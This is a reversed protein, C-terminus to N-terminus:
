SNVYSSYTTKFDPGYKKCYNYFSNYQNIRRESTLLHIDDPNFDPLEIQRTIIDQASAIDYNKMMDYFIMFSTTRGIGEKCHFHIWSEEKINKVASIFSDIVEPSPLEEDTAFIRIYKINSATVLKQEDYVEKPTITEDPHNHFSIPVGIKISALQEKEKKLVQSDTLGKNAIDHENQFSVPIGNIFGHSEQRLDFDIIALNTDIAKLLIPLNMKSFQQSGSINLSELGKTNIDTNNAISQFDSSKRFKCPLIDYTDNDRVLYVQNSTNQINKAENPEKLSEMAKAPILSFLTNFILLSSIILKLKKQKIM